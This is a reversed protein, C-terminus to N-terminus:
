KHFNGWICHFTEHGAYQFKDYEEMYYTDQIYIDCIKREGETRWSACAAANNIKVGVELCKTAILDPHIIHVKTEYEDWSHTKKLPTTTLCGALLAASIVTGLTKELTMILSDSRKYKSCDM